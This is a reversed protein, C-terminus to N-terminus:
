KNTRMIAEPISNYIKNREDNGANWTSGITITIARTNM